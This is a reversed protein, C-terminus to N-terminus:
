VNSERFAQDITIVYASYEYVNRIDNDAQDTIKITYSM